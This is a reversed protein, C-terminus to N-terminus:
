QTVGSQAGRAPRHSLVYDLETSASAMALEEARKAIGRLLYSLALGADCDTDIGSPDGHLVELAAQARFSLENLDWSLENAYDSYSPKEDTLALTKIAM